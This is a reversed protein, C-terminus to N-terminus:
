ADVAVAHAEKFAVPDFKLNKTEVFPLDIFQVPDLAIGEDSIRRWSIGKFAGVMAAIREWVLDM